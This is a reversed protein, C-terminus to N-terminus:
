SSLTKIWVMKRQVLYAPLAAPEDLLLPRDEGEPAKRTHPGQPRTRHAREALRMTDLVLSDQKINEGM